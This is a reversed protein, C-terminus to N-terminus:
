PQAAPIPPNVGRPSFDQVLWRGRRPVLEVFDDIPAVGLKHSTLLVELLIDRQRSRDIKFKAGGFKERPYPVVPITAPIGSRGPSAAACTRRSSRGRPRSTPACSPPRSSAAAGNRAGAAAAHDAARLAQGREAADRDGLRADDAVRVGDRSSVYVVLGALLVIVSVTTFVARVLSRDWLQGM